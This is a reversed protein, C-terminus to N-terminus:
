RREEQDSLAAVAESIENLEDSSYDKKEGIAGFVTACWACWSDHDFGRRGQEYAYRALMEAVQLRELDRSRRGEFLATRAICTICKKAGQEICDSGSGARACLCGGITELTLRYAAAQDLAEELDALVLQYHEDAANQATELEAIRRRLTISDRETWWSPVADSISDPMTTFNVARGDPAQILAFYDEGHVVIKWGHPTRYWPPRYGAVGVFGLLEDEQVELTVQLSEIEQVLALLEDEPIEPLFAKHFNDGRVQRREGCRDCRYGHDGIDPSHTSVLTWLHRCSTM